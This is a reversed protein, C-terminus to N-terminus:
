SSSRHWAFASCLAACKLGAARSRKPGKGPLVFLPTYSARFAFIPTSGEFGLQCSVQPVYECWTSLGDHFYNNNLLSMLIGLNMQLAILVCVYVDCQARLLM